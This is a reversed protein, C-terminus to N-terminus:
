HHYRCYRNNPGHEHRCLHLEVMPVYTAIGLNSLTIYIYIHITHRWARFHGFPYVDGNGGHVCVSPECLIIADCKIALSCVNCRCRGKMSTKIYIVNKVYICVTKKPHFLYYRYVTVHICKKIKRISRM